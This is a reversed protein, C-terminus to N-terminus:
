RNARKRLYNVIFSDHQNKRGKGAPASFDAAHCALVNTRELSIRTSERSACCRGPPNGDRPNVVADIVIAALLILAKVISQGTYPMNLITLGNFLTGVLLTGIVVNRIRGKGGSLGVGGLVAVLIVDYIMNSTAIRTDISTVSAITVLGAIFAFLASVFYQLVIVPRAPIGTIRAALYNDGIAYIFRGIKTRSLFLSGVICVVVFGYVILPIGLLADNGLVRIAFAEAPLNVLDSGILVYHGFGYVFIGVALTAFLAPVEIYAILFGTVVGVALAFGLGYCLGVVTTAGAAMVKAAWGISIAMNSVMSLDIGRGIIVVTMGVGLIGLVSVNRVLNTLNGATLFGPLGVAFALFLVVALALVILEQEVRFKM